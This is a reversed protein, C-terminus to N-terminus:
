GARQSMARGRAAEGTGGPALGSRISAPGGLLQDTRAIVERVDTQDLSSNERCFQTHCASQGFQCNPNPAPAFEPGKWHQVIEAPMDQECPLPGNEDIPEVGFLIVSPTRQALAIQTLASDTAVVLAARDVIEFLEPISTQGHLSVPKHRMLGAIEDFKAREFPEDTGTVVVKLGYRDALYDGLAAWKESRWENCGWHAAVQFVAFGEATDVGRRRLLAATRERVQRPLWDIKPYTPDTPIDCAAIPLAGILRNSIGRPQMGLDHTLHHAYKPGPHFGVRTRAGSIRAVLPWHEFTTRLEIATDFRGAIRLLLRSQHLLLSKKGRKQYTFGYIVKDVFPCGDLAGRVYENVIVTIRATPYARRLDRLAPLAMVVDGLHGRISVLIRRRQM